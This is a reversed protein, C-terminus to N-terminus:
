STRKSSRMKQSSMEEQKKLNRLQIEIQKIATRVVGTEGTELKGDAGHKEITYNPRKPFRLVALKTSDKARM